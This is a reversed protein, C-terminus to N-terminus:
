DPLVLAGDDTLIFHSNHAVEWVFGDPDSFYGAYGGWFTEQAPKSINAGAAEALVADVEIRTRGNYALAM